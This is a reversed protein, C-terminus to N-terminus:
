WMGVKVFYLGKSVDSRSFMSVMSKNGEDGVFKFRDDSPSNLRVTGHSNAIFIHAGHLSLSPFLPHFFFIITTIQLRCLGM